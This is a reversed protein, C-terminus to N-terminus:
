YKWDANAIDSAIISRVNMKGNRKKSGEFVGFMPVRKFMAM